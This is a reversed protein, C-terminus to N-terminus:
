RQLPFLILPIVQLGVLATNMTMKEGSHFLIVFGQGVCSIDAASDMILINESPGPPEHTFM